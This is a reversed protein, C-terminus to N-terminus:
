LSFSWNDHTAALPRLQEEPSLSGPLFTHPWCEEPPNLEGRMDGDYVGVLRLGGFPKPTEHLLKSIAGEGKANHVRLTLVRATLEAVISLLFHM